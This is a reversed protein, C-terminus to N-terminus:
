MMIHWDEGKYHQCDPTDNARLACWWKIVCGYAGMGESIHVKEGVGRVEALEQLTNKKTRIIIAFIINAFLKHWKTQRSLKNCYCYYYCHCTLVVVGIM